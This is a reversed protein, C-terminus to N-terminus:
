RKWEINEKIVKQEINNGVLQKEYVDNLLISNASIVCGDHLKVGKLVTCNSAIWVHNGIQIPSSYNDHTTNNISHFDSDYVTVNRGIMVDKGITIKKAIVIVSNSNVTFYKSEMIAFDLLEVTAGYSLSCSEFINWTANNRLRVYTESKSKKLKNCGIELDGGFLNIVADEAIDIVAGKYPIIHGKGKRKINKSIYNFYIYKFFSIQHIFRIKNILSM